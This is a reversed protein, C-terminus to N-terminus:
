RSRVRATPSCRSSGGPGDAALEAVQPWPVVATAWCRAYGCGAADADTGARWAWVMVALPCSCCSGGSGRATRRAPRASFAIILAAVSIAAPHRFRTVRM